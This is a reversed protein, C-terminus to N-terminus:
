IVLDPKLKTVSWSRRLRVVLVTLLVPVVLFGALVLVDRALHAPNGGSVVVRLGDVLYSMPLLPHLARFPLPLTEVPYIGACTTLQLMLLVLIVASAVGGLLSRFLHAIATFAGTALALLGVMQWYHVPKLGLTWDVVLFLVATGALGAVLAPLWGSLAVVVDNARSALARASLPRLLLFGVIGFVWMAISFFMPTLGRGYTTAPHLNSLRVDVPSALTSANSRKQDDSLVPVQNVADALGSALSVSGFSLQGLGGNLKNAGDDAQAVGAAVKASGDALQQVSNAAGRVQSQLQPANDALTKTGAAVKATGDRVTGAATNAQGATNAAKTTASVLAQYAPDALLEPHTKGLQNVEAQVSSADGSVAGTVQATTNALSAAAASTDAATQTVSPIADAIANAVPVVTNALKANGDAVQQSGGRLQDLGSALDASGKAADALGDRLKTAGDSASALGDHLRQLNGFVSQFYASVAAASIKNELESQVTQAMKGVVYGNADDLVIDMAARQPTGTAGSALKASFDAPVSITFYYRGDSVGRAAEDRDVFRWDFIPDKRLEGVFLEGADVQQGQATVPRDQNVVAVPIKNLQGYPDWNSWLYLAGYLLPVCVAFVLAIRQLPTRFRRFELAALRFVRM